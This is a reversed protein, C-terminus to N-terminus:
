DQHLADDGDGGDLQDNGLEGFLEDNGDGGKLSDNGKNGRLIDNGAGGFADDWGTGAWLRDNGNDGNLVDNGRGGFLKDDGHGGSISDLGPGGCIVDDGGLGRIVDNGRLGVIVDKGETGLLTDDKDTGLITPVLGHCLFETIPRDSGIELVDSAERAADEFLDNFTVKLKDGDDIDIPNSGNRASDLIEGMDLEATFVGSNINSEVLTYELPNAFTVPDGEIEFELVALNTLDDSGRM